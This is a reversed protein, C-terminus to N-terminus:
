LMPDTQAEPSALPVAYMYDSGSLADVMRRRQRCSKRTNYRSFRCRGLDWRLDHFRAQAQEDRNWDSWRYLNGLVSYRLWDSYRSATRMPMNVPPRRRFRSICAMRSRSGDCVVRAEWWNCMALMTEVTPVSRMYLQMGMRQVRWNLPM